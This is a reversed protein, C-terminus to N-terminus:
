TILDIFLLIRIDSLQSLYLSTRLADDNLLEWHDDEDLNEVYDLYAKEDLLGEFASNDGIEFEM